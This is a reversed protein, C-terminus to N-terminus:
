KYVKKTVSANTDGFKSFVFSSVFLIIGIIILALAWGWSNSDYVWWLLGLIILIVGIIIAIIALWNLIEKGM